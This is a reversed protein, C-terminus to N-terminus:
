QVAGIISPDRQRTPLMVRAEGSTGQWMALTIRWPRYADHILLGYGEAEARTQVRRLAEAVPRQAMARAVPYLIRGLFNNATAYRIDFRLRPDFRALEVLDPIATARPDVPMTIPPDALPLPAATPTASTAQPLRRGTCAALLSFGGGALVARRSVDTSRMHALQDIFVTSM